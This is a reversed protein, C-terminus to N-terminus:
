PAHAPGPATANPPDPPRGTPIHALFERSFGRQVKTIVQDAGVALDVAVATTQGGPVEVTTFTVRGFGQKEARLSYTGASRPGFEFAGNEDSTRVEGEPPLDPGVLTLVAGPVAQAGDFVAGELFGGVFTNASSRGVPLVALLFVAFPRVLRM